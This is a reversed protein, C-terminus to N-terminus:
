FIWINRMMLVSKIKQRWSWWALRRNRSHWLHSETHTTAKPLSLPYLAVSVFNKYGRKNAWDITQLDHHLKNKDFGFPGNENRQEEDTIKKRQNHSWDKIAFDSTFHPESANSAVQESFRLLPFFCDALFPHNSHKDDNNHCDRQAPTRNKKHM